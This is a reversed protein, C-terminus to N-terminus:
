TSSQKQIEKQKSVNAVGRNKINLKKRRIHLAVYLFDIARLWKGPYEAGSKFTSMAM